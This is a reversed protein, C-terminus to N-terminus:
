VGARFLLYGIYLGILVVGEAKRIRHGSWMIPLLLWTLGNMMLLDVQQLGYTQLPRVVAALGLITLLNFLNSGVVNGVAIDAERRVAAVISTALEPLSTGVAVVTLGIFAESLGATRALSVAGALFWRGGLILLGLGVVVLAGEFLPHQLRKPLLDKGEELLDPLERRSMWVNLTVYALMLTLLVLGEGRGLHKDLLMAGALLSIGVLLPVDLRVLRAQVQLPQWLAALGLILAINCINSGIVNGATVDGKGQLAAQVSLAVEPSSTGWSVITLGIILPAIGLRLALAASGRVLGEAGLYLGSLGLALFLFSSGM